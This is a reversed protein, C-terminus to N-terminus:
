QPALDSSNNDGPTMQRQPALGSNHYDSAMSLDKIEYFSFYISEVILRTRKNYVRYGKSQTSYGVFICVDRKEKMKDLNEGDRTLYCTRGFIHLHKLTPKRDNIIQYPTKEHRPIILSRNQTYCATAIAEAWFFLPLKSTFLVTQSAEVLTHNRIEVVDNEPTKDKSRLFHTWTYRSYDDVIVLIYKKGNIIEVRMPGCLDMHLFDSRKKSRKIAITKFSSRKAKGLEYSSFLQDKIFKLKPLGNMIDNKSLLNITDFNLHSLRQHWLWAQILSAKALFCILTPSSLDQLTITYLDSVRTFLLLDNGQLDTEDYVNDIDEEENLASYSNSTIINDNKSSTCTTKSITSSKSANGVNTAGKKPASTTAKPEYRVNPKVSPGAFQGGNTSKSKGKRKKKKGVTQFSDNTKEITPTIVNSTTVVPPSVVRKLFDDHVHSSIKCLDCLVLLVPNSMDTVFSATKSANANVDGKETRKNIRMTLSCLFEEGDFTASGSSIDELSGRDNILAKPIEFHCFLKKLFTIVARADNTPLAQAEAWKSVYDVAVLIYEFKYSKPFPGMFDIGWIDFIECVQINNLSMEDRKSINGLVGGVTFDSADCMLEFSLNWKPSVIVPACTLKEKLLKFAEQCKDFEFPTDKDVELGASSVKHGLVIGEKVMFHCKEWNLVLHADKCRLFTQQKGPLAEKHKKLVSVLKKKKEKSLQSSIIVPLFYPEELFVYELNDPLSKLELDTPPEELSTKIKYDTNITIKEFPPDELDSESNSNEDATMTMFEDFEAFIEEELLTGEISHLIKSGEDLLADFDEELIEDISFCTDDNSYSHKM